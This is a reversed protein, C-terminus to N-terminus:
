ALGELEDQLEEESVTEEVPADGVEEWGDNDQEVVDFAADITADVIDDVQEEPTGSMEDIVAESNRIRAYKGLFSKGAVKRLMEPQDPGEYPNSIDDRYIRETRTGPNEVDQRYIKNTWTGGAKKPLEQAAYEGKADRKLAGDAEAQKFYEVNRDFYKDESADAVRVDAYQRGDETTGSRGETIAKEFALTQRLYARYSASHAEAKGLLRDSDYLEGIVQRLRNNYGYVAVAVVDGRPIGPKIKCQFEGNVRSIDRIDNEHILDINIWAFPPKNGRTLAFEFCEIAPIFECVGGFPVLSGMKGLEAGYGLAEELAHVISEQGEVTEWCKAFGADRSRIMIHRVNNKVLRTLAPKDRGIFPIAYEAMDAMRSTIYAPLDGAKKPLAVLATNAQQSKESKKPKEKDQPNVKPRQQNPPTEVPVSETTPMRDNFRAIADEPNRGMVKRGCKLCEIECMGTATHQTRKAPQNCCITKDLPM